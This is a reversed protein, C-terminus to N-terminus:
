STRHLGSRDSWTIRILPVTEVGVADMAMARCRNLKVEEFLGGHRERRHGSQLSATHFRARRFLSCFQTREKRREATGALATRKKNLTNSVSTRRSPKVKSNECLRSRVVSEPRVDRCTRFAGIGTMASSAARFVIPRWGLRGLLFAARLCNRNRILRGNISGKVESSVRHLRHWRLRRPAADGM